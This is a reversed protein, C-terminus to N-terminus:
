GRKERVSRAGRRPKNSFGSNETKKPSSNIKLFVLIPIWRYNVNMDPKKRQSINVPRHKIM